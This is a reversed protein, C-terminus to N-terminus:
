TKATKAQVSPRDKFLISFIIAVIAAMLAPVSWVAQWNISQGATNTTTYFDVVLGAINQGILMGLGLTVLAIFGQANARIEVPAKKDVYIQGAVFFFDYCIGHFLIGLYYMFVFSANNGFAFLLYRIAWFLMGTLLMKKVGLRVFFFPMVILFFIESMQGLTMKGAANVIGQDNLFSNTFSFYFSLPICILLSSIVFILFSPSKMLKLADLGLIDSITVKKGAARPPTRPLFFSYIGMALSAGAAIKLPISTDEVRLLGVIWGAVIWGITGLVRVGPFEKGTDQMQGFSVANTLALTPMYCIAYALLIWFFLSPETIESVLYLIIGGLIHLIALVRQASFFRDAVIGIFFPSIIAAWGTTSYARGIDTGDFDIAFLYTTMTVFWAGWIFYELFMM